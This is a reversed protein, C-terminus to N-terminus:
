SYSKELKNWVWKGIIQMLLMFAAGALFWHFDASWGMVAIGGV